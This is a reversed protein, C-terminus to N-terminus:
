VENEDSHKNEMLQRANIISQHLKQKLLEIPPLETYYAAVHIGQKDMELLEILEENKDACLILGIPSKENPQQEHKALWNLYVEMQSKHSHEFKGLKLDIAVLRCLKRHYFLLDLHYDDDGVTIRKQRALFAFDNGLEMIFLQLQHVIAQELDKESYTDALGLFSLIYPDKFALATSMQKENRLAELDNKITLEPLKSLASREFLMSKIRERLQRVDWQENICLTYYFERQLADKISLLEIFHSWSLKALLTPLINEEPFLEYFKNMRALSRQSFGNGYEKILEQSLTAFIQKGYEARNEKLLFVHIHKGINWYLLTLESNVKTVLRQRSSEILQRIEGLLPATTIQLENNM